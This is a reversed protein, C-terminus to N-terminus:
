VIQSMKEKKESSVVPGRQLRVWTKNIHQFEKGGNNINVACKSKTKTVTVSQFM